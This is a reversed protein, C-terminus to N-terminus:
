RICDASLEGNGLKESFIDFKNQDCIEKKIELCKYWDWVVCKKKQYCFHNM